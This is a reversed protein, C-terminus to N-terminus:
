IEKILHVEPFVLGDGFKCDQPAVGNRLNQLLDLPTNRHRCIVHATADLFDDAPLMTLTTSVSTFEDSWM